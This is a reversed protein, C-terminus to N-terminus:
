EVVAKKNKKVAYANRCIEVYGLSHYLQLAKKNSALCYLFPKRTEKELIENTLFKIFKRGFGNGQHAIGIAINDIEAGDIHACGIIKDGLAYIYREDATRLCEQRANEDAPYPVSNPDHGTELRMIHFAEASLTYAELFDEDRHKQIPLVPIDFKEGPYEMVVSEYKLLFGCKKSLREAVGNNSDYATTISELPTSHLLQESARVALYGYGKLRHQPFIYVYVYADADDIISSLGVAEGAYCVTHIHGKNSSVDKYFDADADTRDIQALYPSIDDMKCIKLGTKNM